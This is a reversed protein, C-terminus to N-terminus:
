SFSLTGGGIGGVVLFYPRMKKPYSGDHDRVLGPPPPQCKPPQARLNRFLCKTFCCFFVSRSLCSLIFM